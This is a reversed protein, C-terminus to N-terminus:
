REHAPEERPTCVLRIRGTRRARRGPWASPPRVRLRGPVRPGGAARAPVLELVAPLDLRAEAVQIGAPAEDIAAFVEDATAAILGALDLRIM